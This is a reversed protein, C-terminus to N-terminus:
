EFAGKMVHQFKRYTMPSGGEPIGVSRCFAAYERPDSVRPAIDTKWMRNIDMRSFEQNPDVSLWRAFRPKLALKRNLGTNTTNQRNVTKRLRSDCSKRLKRVQKLTNTFPRRLEAPTRFSGIGNSKVMTELETLYDILNDFDELITERCVKRRSGASAGAPTEFAADDYEASNDSLNRDRSSPM